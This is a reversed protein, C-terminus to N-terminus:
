RNMPFCKLGDIESHRSLINKPDEKCADIKIQDHDYEDIYGSNNKM